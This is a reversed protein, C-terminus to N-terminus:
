LPVYEVFAEMAEYSALGLKDYLTATGRNRTKVVNGSCVNTM